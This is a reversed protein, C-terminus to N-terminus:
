DKFGLINAIEAAIGKARNPGMGTCMLGVTIKAIAEDKSLVDQLPCDKHIESASIKGANGNKICTQFQKLDYYYSCYYPCTGCSKVTIQRM